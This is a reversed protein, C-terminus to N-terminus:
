HLGRIPTVDAPPVLADLRDIAAHLAFRSADKDSKRVDPDGMATRDGGKKDDSRYECAVVTLSAVRLPDSGTSEIAAVALAFLARDRRSLYNRSDDLTWGPQRANRQLEHHLAVYARAAALLASV